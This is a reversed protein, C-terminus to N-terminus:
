LNKYEQLKATPNLGRRNLETNIINTSIIGDVWLDFLSVWDMTTIPLTEYGPAFDTTM